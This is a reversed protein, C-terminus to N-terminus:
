IAESVAVGEAHGVSKTNQYFYESMWTLDCYNYMKRYMEFSTGTM